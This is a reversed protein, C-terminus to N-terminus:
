WQSRAAETLLRNYTKLQQEHKRVRNVRTMDDKCLLMLLTKVIPADGSSGKAGYLVSGRYKSNLSITNTDPDLRFFEDDPLPRWDFVVLDDEDDPEGLIREFRRTLDKTVGAVPVLGSRIKASNVDRYAREADGLYENFTKDGSTAARLSRLFAPPM